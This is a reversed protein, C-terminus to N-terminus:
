EVRRAEATEREREGPVSDWGKSLLVKYILGGKGSGDDGITGLLHSELQQDNFLRPTNSKLISTLTDLRM